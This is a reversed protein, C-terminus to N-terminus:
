DLRKEYFVSTGIQQPGMDLYPGFPGRLAFGRREYLAIAEPQYIGTELRLLPMGAARAEAELRELIASAVGRRRAADSSFMRKVEAYGDALAIAGCGVATGALRAVFFRVNPQFLADLHLGHQEDPTYRAALYADLAALLTAAEPTPSTVREIEIPTM